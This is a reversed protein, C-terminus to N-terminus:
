TEEVDYADFEHRGVWISSFGGENTIGFVLYADRGISNKIKDPLVSFDHYLADCHLEYVNKPSGLFKYCYRSFNYREHSEILGECIREVSEM